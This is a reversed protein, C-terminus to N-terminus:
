GRRGRAMAVLSRVAVETEVLPRGFGRSFRSEVGARTLNRLLDEACVVRDRQFLLVDTSGGPRYLSKPQGALLFMGREVQRPSAYRVESYRQVVDGVMLAVVEIMAVLGAGTGGPVDTDIVTVVRRNKSYPTAVAVIAGPNCAHCQGAIPYIDAVRGSVPVHNYHYKDPTLRFVAFDGGDFARLWERRDAGLLEELDFFKGKLFLASTEHLSGLLVRADAPSLVARPDEPMPRCEWYRIQREFVKRATSLRAPSEVCEELEVGCASLFRRVGLLRSSLVTDYCLFGFLRSSWASALLAYLAPAHEWVPAYLFSILRDGFLRETRVAGSHREIYQHRIPRV